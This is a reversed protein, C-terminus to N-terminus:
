VSGHAPNPAPRIRIQRVSFEVEVSTGMWRSGMQTVENLIKALPFSNYKLVNAFTLVPFGKESFSDRIRNDQAFFTSSLARVAPHDKADMLDLRALTPDESCGVFKEHAPFEDTKLAYFYKQSNKLIDDVISFQPLFQPYKPCLRLTKGGDMVIKGLGLAIHSIGEEAKLHSIPYFNYSQAVGSIAPYFYNKYKMGTLQQLVVAMEEDETRHMTSRAYSRPAKMYTSAYVLKVAM